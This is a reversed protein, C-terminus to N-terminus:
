PHPVMGECLGKKLAASEGSARGRRNGKQLKIMVQLFLTSVLDQALNLLFGPSGQGVRGGVWNRVLAGQGPPFDSLGQLIVQIPRSRTHRHPPTQTYTCIRTCKLTPTRMYTHTHPHLCTHTHTHAHSHPHAPTFTSFGLTSPLLSLLLPLVTSPLIDFAPRQCSGPASLCGQDKVRPSFPGRHTNRAASRRLDAVGAVVQCPTRWTCQMWHHLCSQSVSTVFAKM